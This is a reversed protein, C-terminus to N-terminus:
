CPRGIGDLKLRRSIESQISTMALNYLHEQQISSRL